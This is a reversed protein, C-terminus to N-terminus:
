NGSGAKFSYVPIIHETVEATDQLFPLIDDIGKYAMPSEDITDPTVSSSWIGEMSAKYAQMDFTNRAQNRGMLRGAGHPGSFNYDPNGKGKVILAGDRMSVPIIAKRGADLRISGKRLVFDEMDIYNHVTEWRDAIDWDMARCIIDAMLTRNVSAYEQALSMDNLYNKLDTGEVYALPSPESPTFRADFEKIASAIERHKGAEKMHLIMEKREEAHREASGIRGANAIEMFHTCIETGLHRSGSHIVLFCRGDESRDIEVFHNGGGLTGLRMLEYSMSVPTNLGALVAEAHHRAKGHIKEVWDCIEAGAPATNDHVNQGSPIFARIAGDLMEFDIETCRLETVSMGCGIDVGVLNPCVKGNEPDITMTTGITCGKGAHVDPMVAIRSGEAFPQDCLTKIQELATKEIVGAFIDATAYLGSIKLM